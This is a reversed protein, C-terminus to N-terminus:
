GNENTCVYTAIPFKWKSRRKQEEEEEEEEALAHSHPLQHLQPPQLPRHLPM